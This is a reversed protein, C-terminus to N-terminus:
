VAMQMHKSVITRFPPQKRYRCEIVEEHLTRMSGNQPFEGHAREVEGSGILFMMLASGSSTRTSPRTM